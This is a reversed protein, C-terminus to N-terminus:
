HLPPLMEGHAQIMEDCMAIIDDICLECATHPDLLAAQYLADRSGSLAAEITLLQVNINTRNMAACAEPLSGVRCPHIGNQDILCPIEVCCDAPLNSILLGTNLVNGHVRLPKDEVVAELIDSAYEHTKKHVLTPNAVIDDRVEEWQEIQKKCRRPYEDIPIAFRDILEPHDRRIWYPSYEANHESSETVYYGFHLMMDHRVMDRAIRSLRELSRDEDGRAKAAEVVAGAGGMDLIQERADRYSKKILPYIDVGDREIELLWAMHNIGFINWRIGEQKMGHNELLKSACSQVSHCLGISQIDFTRQFAGTIMAMPNVYNLFVAEPCVEAMDRGFANVVPITRLARFIGGIGLTDAITQRLGYKAPIEFDIVTSPEYGGVQITNIVFDAGDLAAKRSEVGCYVDVVARADLNSNLTNVMLQSEELRKANIDYLAITAGKLSPTLMCDGIVNKAFVTSGAGMIAIKIM